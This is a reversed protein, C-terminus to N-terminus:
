QYLPHVTVSAHTLHLVVLDSEPTLIMARAGDTPSSVVICALNRTLSPFHFRVIGGNKPLPGSEPKVMLWDSFRKRVAEPWGAALYPLHMRCLEPMARCFRLAADATYEEGGDAARLLNLIVLPHTEKELIKQLFDTRRRPARAYARAANIRVCLNSSQLEPWADQGTKFRVWAQLLAGSAPPKPFGSPPPGDPLLDLFAALAEGDLGSPIRPNRFDAAYAIWLHHLQPNPPIRFKRFHMNPPLGRLTSVLHLFAMEREMEPSTITMRNLQAVMGADLHQWVLDSWFILEDGSLLRGVSLLRESNLEPIKKLTILIDRRFLRGPQMLRDLLTEAFISSGTERAYPILLPELSRNEALRSLLLPALRDDRHRTFTEVVAQRVDADGQEFIELFLGLPLRSTVMQYMQAIAQGSFYGLRWARRLTEQAQDPVSAALLLSCFMRIHYNSEPSLIWRVLLDTDQVRVRAVIEHLAAAHSGNAALNVLDQLTEADIDGSFLSLTQPIEEPKSTRLLDLLYPRTEPTMPLLKLIALREERTGTQLLRMLAHRAMPLDEPTLLGLATRRVLLSSDSLRGIIPLVAHRRSVAALAQLTEARVTDRSDELVQLLPLVANPIKLRGIWSVVAIRTELNEIDLLHIFFPFDAPNELKGLLNVADVREAAKVAHAIKQRILPSADPDKRGALIDLATASVKPNTHSSLRLLVPKSEERTLKAVQSLGTLIDQVNDSNLFNLIQRREAPSAAGAIEGPPDAMGSAPAFFTSIVLFFSLFLVRSSPIKM